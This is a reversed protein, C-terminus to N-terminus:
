AVAGEGPASGGAPAGSHNWGPSATRGTRVDPGTVDPM